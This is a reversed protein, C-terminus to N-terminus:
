YEGLIEVTRSVVEARVKSILDGGSTVFVNKAIISDMVDEIGQATLDPAPDVVSIATLREAANLFVMRLTDAM